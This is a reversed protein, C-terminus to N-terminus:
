IGQHHNVKCIKVWHHFIANNQPPTEVSLLFTSSCCFLTSLIIVPADVLAEHRLSKQSNFIRVRVDWNMRDEILNREDLVSIKMNLEEIWLIFVLCLSFNCLGETFQLIYWCLSICYHFSRSTTSHSHFHLPFPFTPCCRCVQRRPYPQGWWEAAYGYKSYHCM